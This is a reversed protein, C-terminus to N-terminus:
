KNEKYLEFFKISHKITVDLVIWDECFYNKTMSQHMYLFAKDIDSNTANLKTSKAYGIVLTTQVKFKKLESLLEKLKKKVMPKTNILQIEPDSINLIEVDYHHVCKNSSKSQM